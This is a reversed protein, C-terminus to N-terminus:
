FDFSKITEMVQQKVTKIDGRLKCASANIHGGGGLIRAVREVNVNGKSRLSIKISDDSLESYLVSIKVGKVTRPIDVLGETYEPLAGASEIDRLLVVLSAVKGNCDFTLTKLAKTLLSLKSPSTNEYINEAIYQPDAGYEVLNGAALLTDKRTNGYRFGGTDTLIASYLNTATDKSIAINMKKFLRYILEGSSSAQPDILTIKCFGRNSIHHDINIMNKITGIRAAERGVRELESCDLIFVADFEEVNKIKNYIQDAGPLFRYNEPTQDQNFIVAKKGIQHLTHFLALESGLADGDLREHSTILFTNCRYIADIIKQFM